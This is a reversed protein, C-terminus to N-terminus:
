LSLEKMLKDSVLYEIQHFIETKKNRAEWPM